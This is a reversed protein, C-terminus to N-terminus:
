KKKTGKKKTGKKAARAARAAKLLINWERKAFTQCGIHGEGNNSDTYVEFHHFDSMSKDSYVHVAKILRKGMGLVDALRLRYDYFFFNPVGDTTLTTKSIKVPLGNKTKIIQM